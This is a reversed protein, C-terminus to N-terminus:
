GLPSPLWGLTEKQTWWHECICILGQANNGLTFTFLVIWHCAKPIRIIFIKSSIFLCTLGTPTSHHILIPKSFPFALLLTGRPPHSLHELLFITEQLMQLHGSTERPHLRLLLCHPAKDKLVLFAQSQPSPSLCSGGMGHHSEPGPTM